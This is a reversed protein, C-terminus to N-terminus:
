GAEVVIPSLGGCWVETISLQGVDDLDIIEGRIEASLVQQTDEAAILSDAPLAGDGAQARSWVGGWTTSIGQQAEKERAPFFAKINLPHIVCVGQADEGAGYCTSSGTQSPYASPLCGQRERLRIAPRPSARCVSVVATKRCCAIGEAGLVQQHLRARKGLAGMGRFGFGPRVSTLSAARHRSTGHHKHQLMKIRIAPSPHPLRCPEVTSLCLWAPQGMGGLIGRSIDGM